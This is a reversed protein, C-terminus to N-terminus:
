PATSAFSADIGQCLSSDRRCYGLTYQKLWV